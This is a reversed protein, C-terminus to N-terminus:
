DRRNKIFQLFMSLLIALLLGTIFGIVIILRKNPTLAKPKFHIDEYIKSNFTRQPQLTTKLAILLTNQKLIQNNLEIITNDNRLMSVAYVGILSLESNDINDIRNKFVLNQSTLNSKQTEMSNINKTVNNIINKQDIIYLTVTSNHEQIIKNVETYLLTKIDKKSSGKAFLQIIGKSYKPQIIASIYTDKEKTYDYIHYKSSLVKVLTPEDIAINTNTTALELIIDAQYIPKQIFIAYISAFITFLLSIGLIMKKYNFITKLIEDIENSEIKSKM